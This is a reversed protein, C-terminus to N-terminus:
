DSGVNSLQDDDASESDTDENTGDEFMEVLTRSLTDLAFKLEETLYQHIKHADEMTSLVPSVRDPVALIAKCTDVALNAILKQVMEIDVSKQLDKEYDLQAKKAKFLAEQERALTIISKPRGKEDFVQLGLKAFEQLHEWEKTDVVAQLNGNASKVQLPVKRQLFNNGALTGPPFKHLVDGTRLDILDDGQIKYTTSTECFLKISAEWDLILPANPTVSSREGIMRGKKWANQAASECLGGLRKRFESMTIKEGM